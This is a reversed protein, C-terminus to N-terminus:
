RTNELHAWAMRSTSALWTWELSGRWSAMGSCQAFFASTFLHMALAQAAGWRRTLEKQQQGPGEGLVQTLAWCAARLVARCNLHNLSNSETQGRSIPATQQLSGHLRATCFLSNQMNQYNMRPQSSGAQGKERKAPSFDCRQWQLVTVGPPLEQRM